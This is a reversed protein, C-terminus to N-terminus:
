NCRGLHALCSLQHKLGVGCALGGLPSPSSEAV